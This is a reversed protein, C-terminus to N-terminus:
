PYGQARHCMEPQGDLSSILAPSHLRDALFGGEPTSAAEGHFVYAILLILTVSRSCVPWSLDIALSSELGSAVSFHNRTGGPHQLNAAGRSASRAQDKRIIRASYGRESKKALWDKVGVAEDIHRTNIFV